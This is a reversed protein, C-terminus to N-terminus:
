KLIFLEERDNVLLSALVTSAKYRLKPFITQLLRHVSLSPTYPDVEKSIDPNKVNVVLRKFSAFTAHNSGPFTKFEEETLEQFNGDEHLKIYRM